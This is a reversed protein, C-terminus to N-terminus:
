CFTTVILSVDYAADDGTPNLVAQDVSAAASAKDDLEPEPASTFPLRRGEIGFQAITDAMLFLCSSTIMKTRLPRKGLQRLYANLV